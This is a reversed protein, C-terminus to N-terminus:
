APRTHGDAPQISASSGWPSRWATSAACAADTRTSSGHCSSRARRLTWRTSACALAEANGDILLGEVYAQSSGARIIDRDARGGLLFSVADVIISKGAGTEGTLVNMGPDFALSIQDVLAINRITLQSLM